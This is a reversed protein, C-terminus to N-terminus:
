LARRYEAVELTGIPPGPEGTDHWGERAYFHRARAQGAATFLRVETYGRERAADLAADHLRLALGTGWHAPEVFLTRLHALAPDDIPNRAKAAPIFCAQGALAGTEDEAIRVWSAPDALLPGLIGLEFEVTPPEWGEPAFTRYRALGDVLSRALVDADAPGAPRLPPATSM